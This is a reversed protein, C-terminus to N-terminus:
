PRENRRNLSGKPYQARSRLGLALALMMAGMTMMLGPGPLFGGEDKQEVPEPEPEAPTAPLVTINFPYPESWTQRDDRAKVWLTYDGELPFTTTTENESLTIDFKGDGDVDWKYQTIEGDDEDMHVMFTAPQDVEVTAPGDVKLIKPGLNVYLEGSVPDSWAGDDDQVRLTLNHAGASLDSISLESGNGLQGDMSSGWWYAIITGDPDQGRGKLAVTEGLGILTPTISIITATPRANIHLTTIVPSSWLGHEDHVKLSILHDGPTLSDNNFIRQNGFVGDLSSQWLYGAIYGEPDSGNGIFTVNADQDAPSPNISVIEASPYQNVVLYMLVEESWLSSNDRVSFYITHNGASLGSYSFNDGANFEGDLNSRWRYATINEFPDHGHGIFQVAFGFITPSPTISDIFAEPPTNNVQVTTNIEQSWANEDDQVSFYINHNGVSLDSSTFIAQDSLEGDLSSRWRYSQISGLVDLGSGNFIITENQFTARPIISGITANPAVNNIKLVISAVPSWYGQEDQVKFSILHDGVQLDALSFNYNNSLPGDLSSSWQRAILVGDDDGSGSFSIRQGEDAPSPTLQDIYATPIRNVVEVAQLAHLARSQGGTTNLFRARFSYNGFPATEDPQFTVQWHDIKHDMGTVFESEWQTRIMIVAPDDAGAALFDGNASLDVSWVTSQTTHVGLPTANDWPFLFMKNGSTGAALYDGPASLAVSKVQAQTDYSWLPTASSSNYLYLNNDYSGAAVVMGNASISVSAVGGGAEHSWVPTSSDRHFYYVRNDNSGAVMAAGDNSIAVSFIKGDTTHNWMPTSSTRQFLYVQDGSTGVMLYAGDASLAVTNVASGADFQWQPESSDRHFLYVMGDASGAALYTGNHAMSVSYIAAQATFNWIATSSGKQFLYVNQDACGAVGHDGDASIDVGYVSGGLEATWEPTPSDQRYFHLKSDSAGALLYAGDQSLATDIISDSTTNSWVPWGGPSSTQYELVPTLDSEPDAPDTGNLYFKMSRTRQIEDQDHALDEVLPGETGHVGLVVVLTFLIVGLFTILYTKVSRM